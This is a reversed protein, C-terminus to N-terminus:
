LMVSEATNFKSNVYKGFSNMHKDVNYKATYGFSYITGFTGFHTKGQQRVQNVCPKKLTTIDEMRILPRKFSDYKNARSYDCVIALLVYYNTTTYKITRDIGFKRTDMNPIIDRLEKNNVTIIFMGKRTRELNITIRGNKRTYNVGNGISSIEYHILRSNMGQNIVIPKTLHIINDKLRSFDKSSIFHLSHLGSGSMCPKNADQFMQDKFFQQTQVTNFHNNVTLRKKKSVKRSCITEALPFISLTILM